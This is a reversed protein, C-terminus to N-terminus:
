AGINKETMLYEVYRDVNQMIHERVLHEVADEDEDIFLNLIRSHVSLAYEFNEQHWRYTFRYWLNNQRLYKLLEILTDNRSARIFVEHYENHHKFYMNFDNNKVAEEMGALKERLTDIDNENMNEVALKAALGELWARVPFNEKIDKLTIERIYAGKRPITIILGNKELIRFAERIPTRSVGLKRQLESEVLRDGTKLRGEMIANTLYDEIQEVLSVPFKPKFDEM